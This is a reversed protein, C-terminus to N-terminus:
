QSNGDIAQGQLTVGSITSTMDFMDMGFVVRCNVFCTFLANHVNNSYYRNGTIALGVTGGGNGAINNLM